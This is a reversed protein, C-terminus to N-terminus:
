RALARRYCIVHLSVCFWFFSDSVNKLVVSQECVKSRRSRSRVRALWSSLGCGLKGAPTAVPWSGDRQPALQVPRMANSKQGPKSGAFRLLERACCGCCTSKLTEHCGAASERSSRHIMATDSTGHKLSRVDAFRDMNGVTSRAVFACSM